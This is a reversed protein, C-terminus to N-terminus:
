RWWSWESRSSATDINTWIEVRWWCRQRARLPRGGYEISFSKASPVKGSDWLDGESNERRAEDSSLVIRYAVQRVNRLASELRWSLNPRPSELGLPTEIYDERLATVAVSQPAALLRHANSAALGTAAGSAIIFQRRDLSRPM